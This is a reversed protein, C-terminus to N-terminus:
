GSIRARSSRPRRSRSVRDRSSAPPRRPCRGGRGQVPATLPQRSLSAPDPGAAAACCGTAGRRALRAARSRATDARARPARDRLTLAVVGEGLGGPPHPEHQRLGLADGGRQVRDVVRTRFRSGIKSRRAGLTAQPRGRCRDLMPSHGLQHEKVAL